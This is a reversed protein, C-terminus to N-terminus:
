WVEYDLSFKPLKAINIKEEKLKKELERKEEEPTNEFLLALQLRNGRIVLDNLEKKVIESNFGLAFM